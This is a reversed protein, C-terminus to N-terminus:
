CLTWIHLIKQMALKGIWIYSQKLELFPISGFSSKKLALGEKEVSAIGLKAIWYM